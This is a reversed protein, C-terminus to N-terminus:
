EAISASIVLGSLVFFIVVSYHSARETFPWPGNYIISGASAHWVLVVFACEFRVADLVISLPRTIFPESM